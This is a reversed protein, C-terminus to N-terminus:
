PVKCGQRPQWRAASTPPVKHRSFGMYIYQRRAALALRPKLITENVSGDFSQQLYIREVSHKVLKVSIKWSCFNLLYILLLHTLLVSVFGGNANWIAKGRPVSKLTEVPLTL